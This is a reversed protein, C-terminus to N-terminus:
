YLKPRQSRSPRGMPLCGDAGRKCRRLRRLCGAAGTGLGCVHGDIPVNYPPDTFIIDVKEDGLLKGPDDFSRADGCLLLHKGLKWIDGPRTVVHEQIEPVLDEPAGGFSSSADAWDDLVQDIEISDFRTLSLDFDM